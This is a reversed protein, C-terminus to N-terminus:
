KKEKMYHAGWLAFYNPGDIFTDAISENQPLRGSNLLASLRALKVGILAVFVQDIPNDFHKVLEAALEFNSYPNDDRAYDASKKVHIAKMKDVLELFEKSPPM